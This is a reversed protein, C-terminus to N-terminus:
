GLLIWGSSFEAGRIKVDVRQRPRRVRKVRHRAHMDDLMKVVWLLDELLSGANQLRSPLDVDLGRM